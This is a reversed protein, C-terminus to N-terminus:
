ESTNGKAQSLSFMMMFAGLLIFVSVARLGVTALIEMWFPGGPYGKATVVFSQTLGFIAAFVQITLGTYASAVFFWFTLKARLQTVRAYPIAMGVAMLLLGLMVGLTHASLGGRPNAYFPIFLPAICGLAFLSFGHWLFRRRYEESQNQSLLNPATPSSNFNITQESTDIQM